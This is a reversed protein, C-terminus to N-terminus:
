TSQTHDFDEQLGSSVVNKGGQRDPRAGAHEDDKMQGGISRTEEHLDELGLAGHGDSFGLVFPRDFGAGHIKGRGATV